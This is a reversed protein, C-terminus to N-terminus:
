TNNDCSVCGVMTECEDECLGDPDGNGDLNLPKSYDCFSCAYNSGGTNYCDLCDDIQSCDYCETWDASKAFGIECTLCKPGDEYTDVCEACGSIGDGCEVCATGIDDWIYGGKCYDCESSSDCSACNEDVDECSVSAGSDIYYGIEAELCVTDDCTL